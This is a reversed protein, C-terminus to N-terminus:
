KKASGKRGSRELKDWCSWRCDWNNLDYFKPNDCCISKIVDRGGRNEWEIVLGAARKQERCDFERVDWHRKNPM